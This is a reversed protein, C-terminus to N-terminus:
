NKSPDQNLTVKLQQIHNQIKEYMKNEVEEHFTGTLMLNLQPCYSAYENEGRRRILIEYDDINTSTSINSSM